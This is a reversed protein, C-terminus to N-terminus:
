ELSCLSSSDAQRKGGTFLSEEEASKACRRFSLPNKRIDSFRSSVVSFQERVWGPEWSHLDRSKEWIENRSKCSYQLPEAIGPSLQGSSIARFGLGVM